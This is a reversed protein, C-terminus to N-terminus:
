YWKRYLSGTNGTDIKDSKPLILNVQNVVADGYKFKQSM